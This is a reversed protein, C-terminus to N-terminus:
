CGGIGSSRQVPTQTPATAPASTTGTSKLLRVANEFAMAQYVQIVSVLIIAVLLLAIIIEKNM